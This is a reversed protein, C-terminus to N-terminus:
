ECSCRVAHISDGGVGENVENGDVVMHNLAVIEKLVTEGAAVPEKM